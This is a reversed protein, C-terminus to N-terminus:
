VKSEIVIVVDSVPGRNIMNFTNYTAGLRVGAWVRHPPIEKENLFDEMLRSLIIGSTTHHIQYM